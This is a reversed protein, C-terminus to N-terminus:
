SVRRRVAGRSARGQHHGALHRVVPCQLGPRPLSRGCGGCGSPLTEDIALDLEETVMLLGGDRGPGMGSMVPCPDAALGAM